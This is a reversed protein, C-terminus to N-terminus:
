PFNKQERDPEAEFNKRWRQCKDLFGQRGQLADNLEDAFHEEIVKQRDKSINLLKIM